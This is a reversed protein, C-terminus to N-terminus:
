TIRCRSFSEHISLAFDVQKKREDTVTFNALHYRGQKFDLIGARNAADVSVYKVKVCPRPGSQNGLEIDYGQYSGDNDVYGFPKTELYPSEYNVAKQNRRNTRAKATPKVQPLILTGGSSCATFILAFAFHLVTLIPKLSNM